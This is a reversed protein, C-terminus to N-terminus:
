AHNPQNIQWDSQRLDVVKIQIKKHGNWENEDLTYVVDIPVNPQLLDFKPSLGFGIGDIYTDQQKLSFKVHHEKVIKSAGTELVRKSIFVPRMNEPGFPEMQCIINFFSPTIDKFDLETDIQLEPTLMDETISQAVVEEFKNKFAAVNEKKLTLGAAYFHGGYNILLERCQHIANYINFGIVSRASGSAIDGSDTLVITPRYYKETLRSAVIGVVGKHWSGNHLVTTKKNAEEVELLAMAQDTISLDVEKRDVNDDQLQAAFDDAEADTEAIFLQVAKIADDMRGAANIRPAIVFVFDSIHFPGQFQVLKRLAKIGKSPKENAMKLGFFGLIRNEETIPVIDAAIAVAVLDLYEEYQEKGLGLRNCLAQILKFGVGCGCLEKFPYKCDKQKANLIAVANPLVEDPMHHDCIIFDIGQSKAFNVLEASKIGCDLAIILSVHEKIAFDIGTQSVGYGERYRHPIYKLVDKAIHKKIFSYMCAVATTGDVDYDGFVLIKEKNNKAALIRNVAKEMDKMLFPDHLQDLQPRFYARAHEFKQIQRQVLLRCIATHIKIEKQLEIVLPEEVTKETWRKQM